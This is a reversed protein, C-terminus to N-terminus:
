REALMKNMDNIFHSPKWGQIIKDLLFSDFVGLAIGVAPHVISGFGAFVGFRIIKSPLKDIINEENCSSIYNQNLVKERSAELIIDDHKTSIMKSAIKNAEKTIKGTRGKTKLIYKGIIEGLAKEKASAFAFDYKNTTNSATVTCLLTELYIIELYDNEILARIGDIRFHRLLSMLVNEDALVKVKQYFIMCEVLHGIDIFNNNEHSPTFVISQFM